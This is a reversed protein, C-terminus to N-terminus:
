IVPTTIVVSVGHMECGRGMLSHMGARSKGTTGSSWTLFATCLPDPDVRSHRLSPTPRMFPHSARIECLPLGWTRMAKRQCRLLFVM